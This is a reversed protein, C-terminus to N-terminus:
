KKKPLEVLYGYSPDEVGGNLLLFAYKGDDTMTMGSYSGNTIEAITVGDIALTSCFYSFTHFDGLYMQDGEYYIPMGDCTVNAPPSDKLYIGRSGIRNNTRTIVPNEINPIEVNIEQENMTVILDDGRRFAYYHAYFGELRNFYKVFQYMPGVEQRELKESLDYHPVHWTITPASRLPGLLFAGVFYIVSVIAVWPMRFQKADVYRRYTGLLPAFITVFVILGFFIIYLITIDGDTLQYIGGVFWFHAFMFFLELIGRPMALGLGIIPHNEIVRDFGDLWALNYIFVHTTIIYVSATIGLITPIKPAIHERYWLIIRGFRKQSSPLIVKKLLIQAIFMGLLFLATEIAFGAIFVPDIDTTLGTIGSSVGISTLVTLVIPLGSIIFRRARHLQLNEHATLSTRLAFLHYIISAFLCAISVAGLTGFIEFMWGLINPIGLYQWPEPGLDDVIYTVQGLTSILVILTGVVAFAIAEAIIMSPSATRRATYHANAVMSSSGLIKDTTQSAIGTIAAFSEHDDLHDNLEEILRDARRDKKLDNRLALFYEDRNM